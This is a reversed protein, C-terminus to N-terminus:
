QRHNLLNGIANANKELDQEGKAIALHDLTLKARAQPSIYYKSSLADFKNSLSIYLKQIRDYSEDLPTITAWVEQVERLKELVICLQELQPIDASSLVRLNILMSTLKKWFSRVYKTTLSKPASVRIGKEFIVNDAKAIVKSAKEREADRDLRFTGEIKKLEIPKPPRGAMKKESWKSM